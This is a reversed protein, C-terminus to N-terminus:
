LEPSYNSSTCRLLSPLPPSASSFPVGAGLVYEVGVTLSEISAIRKDRADDDDMRRRDMVLDDDDDGDRSEPASSLPQRPRGRRGGGMWVFRGREEIM